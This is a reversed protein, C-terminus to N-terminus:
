IVAPGCPVRQNVSEFGSVTLPRSVPSSPVIVVAPATVM